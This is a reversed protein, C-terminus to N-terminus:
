KAAAVQFWKSAYFRTRGDVEPRFAIRWCKLKTSHTPVIKVDGSSIRMTILYALIELVVDCGPLFGDAKGTVDFM